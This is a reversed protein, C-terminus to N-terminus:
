ALYSAAAAATVSAVAGIAVTGALTARVGDPTGATTAILAALLVFEASVTRVVVPM